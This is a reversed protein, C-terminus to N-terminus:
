SNAWIEALEDLRKDQYEQYAVTMADLEREIRHRNDPNRIYDRMSREEPCGQILRELAKQRSMDGDVVDAARIEVDYCFLAFGHGIMNWRLDRPDPCKEEILRTRESDWDTFNRLEGLPSPMTIRDAQPILHQSDFILDRNFSPRIAKLTRTHVLPARSEVGGTNIIFPVVFHQNDCLM